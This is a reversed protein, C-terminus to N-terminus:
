NPRDLQPTSVAQVQKESSPEACHPLPLTSKYLLNCKTTKRIQETASWNSKQQWQRISWPLCSRKFPSPLCNANTENADKRQQVSLLMAVSIHVCLFFSLPLRHQAWLHCVLRLYTTKNGLSPTNLTDGTAKGTLTLTKKLMAKRALLLWRKPTQASSPKVKFVESKCRRQWRFRQEALALANGHECGVAVSFVM